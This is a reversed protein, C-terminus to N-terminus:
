NPYQNSFIVCVIFNKFLFKKCLFFFFFLSLFSTTNCFKQVIQPYSIQSHGPFLTRQIQTKKKEKEKKKLRLTEFNM